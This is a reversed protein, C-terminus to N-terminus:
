AAWVQAAIRMFNGGLVGHVAAEKYGRSRLQQAIQPLVEPALFTTNISDPYQRKPWYKQITAPQLGPGKGPDYDLGIGVHEPGVLKIMYDIHAVM